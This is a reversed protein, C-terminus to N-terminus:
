HKSLSNKIAKLGDIISGGAFAVAGLTSFIGGAILQIDTGDTAFASLFLIGALLWALAGVFHLFLVM